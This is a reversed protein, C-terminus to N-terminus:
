LGLAEKILALHDPDFPIRMARAQARESMKAWTKVIIKKLKEPEHKEVFPALYHRLFVLCAVDELAQTDESNRKVKDRIITAVSEIFSEDIGAERMQESAYQAHLTYLEARWQLYGARDMPYNSRPSRWRAIHQARVAVKLEDSANPIFFDLEESMRISYLYEAPYNDGIWNVIETDQKNLDDISQIAKKYLETENSM